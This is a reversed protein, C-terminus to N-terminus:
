ASVVATRRRGTSRHSCVLMLKSGSGLILFEAADGEPMGTVEGVFKCSWRCVYLGHACIGACVCCLQTHCWGTHGFECSMRSVSLHTQM